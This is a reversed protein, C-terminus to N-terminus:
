DHLKQQYGSRSEKGGQSQICRIPIKLIKACAEQFEEAAFENVRDIRAYLNDCTEDILSSEGSAIKESLNGVKRKSLFPYIWNLPENKPFQFTGADDANSSRLKIGDKTITLTATSELPPIPKLNANHGANKLAQLKKNSANEIQTWLNGSVEELVMEAIPPESAGIRPNNVPYMNQNHDSQQLTFLTRLITTKGGNNAALLINIGKAFEILGSDSFCKVNKIRLRKVWMM